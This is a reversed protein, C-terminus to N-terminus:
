SSVETFLVVNPDASSFDAGRYIEITADIYSGDPSGAKRALAELYTAATTAPPLAEKRVGPLFTASLGNSLTLLAGVRPDDEAYYKEFYSTSLVTWPRLQLVTVKITQTNFLNEYDYSAEWRKTDGCCGRVAEVINLALSSDSSQFRGNCCTVDQHASVIDGSEKAVTGAFAGNSSKAFTSWSPVSLLYAEENSITCTAKIVSACSGLALCKDLLPAVSPRGKVDTGFTLALYSVFSDGTTKNMSYRIIGSKSANLSDYYDEVRGWFGNAKAILSCTLLALPGCCVKPNQRTVSAVGTADGQLLAEILPEERKRVRAQPFSANSFTTESYAPGYHTLDSTCIVCFDEPIDSLSSAICEVDDVTSPLAILLKRPCLHQIIEDRVWRFSHEEPIPDVDNGDLWVRSGKSLDHLTGVFIICNPTVGKTSTLYSDFAHHRAAGAYPLGAHPILILRRSSM